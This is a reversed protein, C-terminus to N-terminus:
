RDSAYATRWAEQEKRVVGEEVALCQRLRRNGARAAWARLPSPDSRVSRPSTRRAAPGPPPRPRARPRSRRRRPAAARPRRRCRGARRCRSPRRGPSRPSRALLEAVVRDDDQDLAVEILEHEGGVQARQERELAAQGAVDRPPSTNVSAGAGSGQARIASCCGAWATSPPAVKRLWDAIWASSTSRACIGRRRAVPAAGGAGRRLRRAGLARRSCSCAAAALRRLLHQAAELLLQELESRTRGSPPM